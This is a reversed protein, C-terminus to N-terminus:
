VAGQDLSLLLKKTEEWTEPCTRLAIGGTRRVWDAKYMQLPQLQEGARKLELGVFKGRVCLIFDFDGRIALQQIPFFSTNRLGELFLHVVRVRFVREKTWGMSKIPKVDPV